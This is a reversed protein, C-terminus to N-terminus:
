RGAADTRYYFWRETNGEKETRAQSSCCIDNSIDIGTGGHNTYTKEEYKEKNIAVIDYEAQLPLSFLILFWLFVFKEVDHVWQIM